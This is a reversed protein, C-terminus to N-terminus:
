YLSVLAKTKGNGIKASHQELDVETLALNHYTLGPQAIHSRKEQWREEKDSCSLRTM